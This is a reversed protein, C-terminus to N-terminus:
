FKARQMEGSIWDIRASGRETGLAVYSEILGQARLGDFVSLQSTTLPVSTSQLALDGGLVSRLNSTLSLAIMDSALRLAVVAMVGVAICFVALLSRQGGRRLSRIASRLYLRGAGM